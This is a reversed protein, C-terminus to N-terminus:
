GPFRRLRKDPVEREEQMRDGLSIGARRKAGAPIVSNLNRVLNKAVAM